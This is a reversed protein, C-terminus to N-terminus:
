NTLGMLKHNHFLIGFNSDAGGNVTTLATNALTQFFLGHIQGLCHGLQNGGVQLVAVATRYLTHYGVAGDATHGLARGTGLLELALTYAGGNGHGGAPAITGLSHVHVRIIRLGDPAEVTRFTRAGNIQGGDQGTMSLLPQGSEADITTVHLVQVVVANGSVHGLLDEAKGTGGLGYGGHAALGVQRHTAHRHTNGAGNDIGVEELFVQAHAVLRDVQGFDDAAHRLADVVLFFIGLCHGPGLFIALHVFALVELITGLLALGAFLLIGVPFKDHLHHDDHAVQHLAVGLQTLHAELFLRQAVIGNGGAELSLTLPGVEIGVAIIGFRQEIGREVPVADTFGIHHSGLVIGAVAHGHEEAM